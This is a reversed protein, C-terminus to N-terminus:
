KRQERFRDEWLRKGLDYLVSHMCDAPLVRAFKKLDDEDMGRVNFISNDSSRLAALVDTWDSVYTAMDTLKKAVTEVDPDPLQEELTSHVDFAIQLRKEIDKGKLSGQWFALPSFGQLASMCAEASQLAGAVDASAKRKQSSAGSRNANSGGSTRVPPDQPGKKKHRKLPPEPEEKVPKFGIGTDEDSDMAEDPHHVVQEEEVPADVARALM